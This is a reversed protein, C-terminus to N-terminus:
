HSAVASLVYYWILFHGYIIISRNINTLNIYDFIDDGLRLIENHIINLAQEGGGTINSILCEGKEFESYRCTEICEGSVSYVYPKDSPCYSSNRCSNKEESQSISWINYICDNSVELENVKCTKSMFVNQYGQILSCEELCLDGM